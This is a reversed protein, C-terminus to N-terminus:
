FSDPRRFAAAQVLTPIGFLGKRAQDLSGLKVMRDIAAVDQYDVAIREVRNRADRGVFANVQDDHARSSPLM